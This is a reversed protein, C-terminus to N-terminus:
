ENDALIIDAILLMSVPPQFPQTEVSFCLALAPVGCDFFSIRAM